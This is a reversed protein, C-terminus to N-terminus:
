RASVLNNRSSTTLELIDEIISRRQEKNLRRDLFSVPTSMNDKRKEDRRGERVGEGGESKKERRKKAM